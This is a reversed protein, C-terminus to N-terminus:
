RQPGKRGILRYLFRNYLFCYVAEALTIYIAITGFLVWEKARTVYQNLWYSFLIAHLMIKFEMHTAMIVLSNKGYFILLRCEWLNRCILIVGLSGSLACLMYLAINGFVMYNLDVLENQFCCWSTFLVLGVGLLFEAPSKKGKRREARRHILSGALYGCGLFAAALLSRCGVQLLSGAALLGLNEEWLTWGFVPSILLAFLALAGLVAALVRHSFRRRLGYFLLESLFLTPLFWLVSIGHLTVTYVLLKCLFSVEILEPTVILTYLNIVMYILSFTAYPILLARAKGKVFRDPERKEEGVAWFLMGSIVFFLPMHFSAIFQYVPTFYDKYDITQLSGFLHGAVMLVIGVGKAMDLYAIRKKEM